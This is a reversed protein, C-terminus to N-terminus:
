RIREFRIVGDSGIRGQLEGRAVLYNVHAIGEGMAFMVQHTDLPRAFLTPLLEAVSRPTVCAAILEECRAEHHAELQAVRARIGRFPRGHSPLVLTDDPLGSLRQLSALYAGLADDDPNVAHISINTSIRPLLMDGSILVGIEACYLSAHEPSHGHGVIVQWSRAGINLCEGDVIRRLRAPLAPVGKAYQNGRAALESLRTEDLGHLRFHALMDSVAFGPLQHWVARAGLYEGLTMYLLARYESALWEAQGLHDPHCHTVVIRSPKRPESAMLTQWDARAQAFGIGTDVVAIGEADDLLWLNIHDLVFPLSMRVWRVGPAVPLAQCPQPYEEFPYHLHPIPHLSSDPIVSLGVRILTPSCIM